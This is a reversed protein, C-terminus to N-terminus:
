TESVWSDVLSGTRAVCASISAEGGVVALDCTVVTASLVVAELPMLSLGASLRLLHSAYPAPTSANSTITAPAIINKDGDGAIFETAMRGNTFSLLSGSASYRDSPMVSLMMLLRECNGLRRTMDRLAANRKLPDFRSGTSAPRLRFTPATRIPRSTLRSSRNTILVSSILTASPDCSQPASYLLLRASM